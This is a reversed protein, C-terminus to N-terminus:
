SVAHRELAECAASLGSQDQCRRAWKEASDSVMADGLLRELAEAVRPGKFRRPVIEEAVGLLRLREANDFQDFALPQVIQPIGAALGRASSGVGGHHVFAASRELVSGLPLFGLAAVQDPLRDPLQEPYKTLLVGRLGTRECADVAAAFFREGYRNASGPTFVVPPPGDELFRNAEEPLASHVGGDWLPFASTVTGPPWDPQPPAFWDPFLALPPSVRYYWDHFSGRIPGLGVRRRFRNLPRALMPRILLLESLAYQTRALWPSPSLGAGIPLRPPSRHSWLVLPAFCLSLVPAGIREGLVRSALDLGHAGIVTEGPRHLRQMIEYLEELCEELALKIIVRLGRTPHWLRKTHTIKKYREVTAIPTFGLGADRIPQEFYPNSVLMVEHGRERMAVGLGIVPHVDGYSGLASFLCFM